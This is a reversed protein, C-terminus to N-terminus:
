DAAPVDKGANEALNNIYLVDSRFGSAIRDPVKTFGCNRYTADDVKSINDADVDYSWDVIKATWLANGSSNQIKADADVTCNNILLNTCKNNKGKTPSFQAVIGATIVGKVEGSFTCNNIAITLPDADEKIAGDKNVFGLIGGATGYSNKPSTTFRESTVTGAYSCGEITVTGYLGRLLGATDKYGGIFGVLGGVRSVGKVHCNEAKVNKILVETKGDFDPMDQPHVIGGILGTCNSDSGLTAAMNISENAPKEITVNKFTVNEITTKGYIAGFFGSCYYRSGTGPFAYTATYTTAATQTFGDIVVPKEPDSSGFYGTFLRVPAWEMGELNLTTGPAVEIVADDPIMGYSIKTFITNLLQAAEKEAQKKEAATANEGYTTSLIYKGTNAANAGEGEFEIKLSSYSTKTVNGQNSTIVTYKKDGETVTVSGASNPTFDMEVAQKFTQNYVFFKGVNEPALLDVTSYDTPYEVKSDAVNYLICVNDEKFWYVQYGSTLPSWADVDYGADAIVKMATEINEPKGHEAAYAKLVTNMQRVAQMDSSLNAKRVLSTFTPILVAALIAIVAIVIVLEVITFGRKNRKM